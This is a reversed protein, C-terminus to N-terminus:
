KIGFGIKTWIFNSTQKRSFDVVMAVEGGGFTSRTACGLVEYDM